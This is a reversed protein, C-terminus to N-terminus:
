FNWGVGEEEQQLQVTLQTREVLLIQSLIQDPRATLLKAFHLDADQQDMNYPENREAWQDVPAAYTSGRVRKMLTMTLTDKAAITPTALAVM